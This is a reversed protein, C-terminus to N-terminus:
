EVKIWNLKIFSNQNPIKGTYNKGHSIYIQSILGNWDPVNSMDVKYTQTSGDGNVSFLKVRSLVEVDRGVKKWGIMLEDINHINANIVITKMKSSDWVGFPSFIKSDYVTSGNGQDIKKDGVYWLMENNVKKFRGNISYWGQHKGNTFDFNFERLKINSSYLWSRFETESGVYLYGRYATTSQNDMDGMLASNMYSTANDKAGGGNSIFQKGRFRSNYPTFLFLGKKDNNNYTTGMWNESTLFAGTDTQGGTFNDIRTTPQKTYPQTGIYVYQNWLNAISYCGPAEQERGEYIMESDTRNNEIITYYNLINGELWFWFHFYTEVEKGKSPSVSPFWILGKTQVYLINNRKEYFLVKPRNLYYDGGPNPNFGTDKGPDSSFVGNFGINPTGYISFFFSRGTDYGKGDIYYTNILNESLSQDTVSKILAGVGGVSNLIGFEIQGNNITQLSNPQWTDIQNYFPVFPALKLLDGLTGEGYGGNLSITPTINEEIKNCSILGLLLFLFIKKM